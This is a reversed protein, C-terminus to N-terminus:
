MMEEIPSYNDCIGCPSISHSQEWDGWIDSVEESDYNIESDGIAWASFNLQGQALKKRGTDTLKVNVIPSNSNELTIYSM